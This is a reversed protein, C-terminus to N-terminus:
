EASNSAKEEEKKKEKEAKAKAKEERKVREESKIVGNSSGKVREMKVGNLRHSAYPDYGVGGCGGCAM